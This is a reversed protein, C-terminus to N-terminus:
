GMDTDHATIIVAGGVPVCALTDHHSHFTDAPAVTYIINPLGYECHTGTYLPIAGVIYGCGSGAINPNTICDLSAIGDRAVYIRNDPGLRLDGVATTTGVSTKSAVIALTGPLSIDYQYVVTGYLGSTYLKTNDPSFDAGYNSLGSNLVQCNSVIGTGADFDYLETGNSSTPSVECNQLM